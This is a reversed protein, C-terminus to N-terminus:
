EVRNQEEEKGNGRCGFFVWAGSLRRKFFWHSAQIEGEKRARFCMYFGSIRGGALFDPDAKSQGGAARTTPAFNKLNRFDVAMYEMEKAKFQRPNVKIARPEQIKPLGHTGQVQRRGEGLRCDPKQKCIRTHSLWKLRFNDM